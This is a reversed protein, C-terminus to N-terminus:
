KAHCATAHCTLDLCRKLSHTKKRQSGFVNNISDTDCYMQFSLTHTNGLFSHSFCLCVCICSNMRNQGNTNNNNNTKKKLKLCKVTVKRCVCHYSFPICHMVYSVKRTQDNDNENKNKISSNSNGGATTQTYTHATAEFNEFSVGFVRCM